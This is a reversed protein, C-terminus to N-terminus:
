VQELKKKRRWARLYERNIQRIREKVAPDSEREKRRAKVEPLQHYERDYKRYRSIIAEEVQSM